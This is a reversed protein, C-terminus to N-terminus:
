VGEDNLQNIITRMGVGSISRSVLDQVIESRKPHLTIGSATKVMWAPISGGTATEQQRKKKHYEKLRESKVLSEDYARAMVALSLILQTWNGRVSAKSYVQKDTLTHVTVGSSILNMFLPLVDDVAQRSLRDLSEIILHVPSPVEGSEIAKILNGLAADTGLNKGKFASVGSDSVANVLDLDNKLCYDIALQEQREISSANQQSSSFRAYSIARNNQRNQRNQRNQIM